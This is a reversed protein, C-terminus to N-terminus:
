IIKKSDNNITLINDEYNYNEVLIYGDNISFINNIKKILEINNLKKYFFFLVM